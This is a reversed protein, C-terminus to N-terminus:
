SNKTMGILLQKNVGIKTELIINKEQRGFWFLLLNRGIFQDSM